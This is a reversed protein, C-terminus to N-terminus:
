AKFFYIARTKLVRIETVAGLIPKTIAKMCASLLFVFLHLVDISM